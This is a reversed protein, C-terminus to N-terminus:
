EWVNNVLDELKFYEKNSIGEEKLKNSLNVVFPIEIGLKILTKSENLINYYKGETIIKGNDLIYIYDSVDCNNFSSSFNIITLKKISKLINIIKNKESDNMYCFVDDILLVKPNHILALCFILVQKEYNSLDKIKKEKIDLSFLKLIRNVQKKIYFNTYGLNKLPYVLEDYVNDFLFSDKRLPYVLGLQKIYKNVNNRNLLINNCTIVNTTPIIGSILKFLTTKGSNNAGIISIFKNNSINLYFNEFSRYNLDNIIIIDQMYM